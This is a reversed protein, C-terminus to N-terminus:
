ASSQHDISKGFSQRAISSSSWGPEAISGLGKDDQGRNNRSTRTTAFAERLPSVTGAGDDQPSQPRGNEDQQKKLWGASRDPVMTGRSVESSSTHLSDSETSDTPSSMSRTTSQSPGESAVESREPQEVKVGSNSPRVQRLQGTRCTGLRPTRTASPPTDSPVVQESPSIHQPSPTVNNYFSGNLRTRHRAELAPSEKYSVSDRPTFPSQDSYQGQLYDEGRRKVPSENYPDWGVRRRADARIAKRHGEDGGAGTSSSEELFFNLLEDTISLHSQQQFQQLSTLRLLLELMSLSTQVQPAWSQPTHESNLPETSETDARVLPTNGSMQLGSFFSTLTSRKTVPTNSSDGDTGDQADEDLDSGDDSEQDDQFIEFAIWEPDLSPPLRLSDQHRHSADEDINQKEQRTMKSGDMAEREGDHGESEGINERETMRRPPLANIDRRLLLVPHNTEADSGINLVKSTDAYFIKSIEHVPIVERIGAQMVDDFQTPRAEEHWDHHRGDDYDEILVMQYAYEHERKEARYFDSDAHTEIRRSSKIDASSVAGTGSGTEHVAELPVRRLSVKAKHIVEKWTTNRVEDETEPRHHGAFLMYITLTFVPGIKAARHPTQCYEHDGYTLFTSAQLLRSPSVSPPLTTSLKAGSTTLALNILPIADDIRTILKKTEYVIVAIEAESEAELTARKRASGARYKESTAVASTLRQTLDQIDHRLEQTLLMASELSTNGRAAILEIMDIAPSVIRIRHQLRQQTTHLEDRASGKPANQVLRATQKLAYSATLTVGSKIAYNMAHKTVSGLLAEM